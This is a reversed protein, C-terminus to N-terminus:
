LNGGEDVYLMVPNLFSNSTAMSLELLAELVAACTWRQM